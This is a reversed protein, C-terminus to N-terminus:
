NVELGRKERLTKLYSSWEHNLTVYQTFYDDNYLALTYHDGRKLIRPNKGTLELWLPSWVIETPDKKSQPTLFDKEQVRMVKFQEGFEHLYFAPPEQAQMYTVCFLSNLLVQTLKM